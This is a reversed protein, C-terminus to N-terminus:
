SMDWIKRDKVYFNNKDVQLPYRADFRPLRL